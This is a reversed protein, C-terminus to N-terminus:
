IIRYMDPSEKMEYLVSDPFLAEASLLIERDTGKM